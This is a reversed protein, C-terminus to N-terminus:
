LQTLPLQPIILKRRVKGDRIVLGHIPSSAFFHAAIIYIWSKMTYYPSSSPPSTRMRIPRPSFQHVPVTPGPSKTRGSTESLIIMGSNQNRKCETGSASVLDPTGGSVYWLSSLVLVTRGRTKAICVDFEYMLMNFLRLSVGAASTSRAALELKLCLGDRTQNAVQAMKQSRSSDAQPFPRRPTSTTTRSSNNGGNGVGFQHQDLNTSLRVCGAAFRL